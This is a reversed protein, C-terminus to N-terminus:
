RQRVTRQLPTGQSRCMFLFFCFLNFMCFFSCQPNNCYINGSCLIWSYLATFRSELQHEDLCDKKKKKFALFAKLFVEKKQNNKMFLGRKTEGCMSSLFSKSFSNNVDLTFLELVNNYKSVLIDPSRCVSTM